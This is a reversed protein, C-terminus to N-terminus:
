RNRIKDFFRVFPAAIFISSYSGVVIGFLLVLAFDRLTREGGALLAFIAVLTLISTVITRSLTQTISLDLNASSIVQTREKVNERIRDFIVITDNISYGLLTLVAALVPISPEIQMAGIFGLTLLLDHLLAVSAGLAFVLDFRFTLYMGVAVLTYILIRLALKSLNKGYSAAITERSVISESPIKLFPLLQKAVEEATSSSPRVENSVSSKPAQTSDQNLKEKKLQTAIKDRVGPGFELDWQNSRSDVLRILPKEFGAQISASLLEKEGSDPPLIISFRIGGDFTLSRAFGGHYFYTVGLLTLIAIGSGVAFLVQYRSFIM